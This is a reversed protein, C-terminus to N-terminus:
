SLILLGLREELLREADVLLREAGFMGFGQIEDDVQRLEINLLALILLGLPKQLLCQRGTFSDQPRLM